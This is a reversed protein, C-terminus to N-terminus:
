PAYFIETMLARAKSLQTDPAPLRHSVMDFLKGAKKDATEVRFETSFINTLKAGYGYRGGTTSETSDDFNSGTLLNGLVLEPVYVQEGAHMQVPIGRGNNWVSIRPARDPGGADLEVDIRDMRPDRLRNDLANVLIEDFLKVLGPVYSFDQLVLRETKRDYLWATSRQPETAGIYM